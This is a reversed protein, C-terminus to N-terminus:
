IRFYRCILYLKFPGRLQKAFWGSFFEFKDDAGVDGPVIWEKQCEGIKTMKKFIIHLNTRRGEFVEELAKHM